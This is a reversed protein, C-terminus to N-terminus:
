GTNVESEKYHIFTSFSCACPAFLLAPMLHWCCQPLLEKSQQLSILGSPVRCHLLRPVFGEGLFARLVCLIRCGFSSDGHAASPSQCVGWGLLQPTLPHEPPFPALLLLRASGLGPCCGRTHSLGLSSPWGWPHSPVPKPDNSHSCQVQQPNPLTPLPAPEALPGPFLPGRDAAFM